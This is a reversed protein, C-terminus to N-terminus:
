ELYICFTCIGLLFFSLSSKQDRARERERESHRRSFFDTTAAEAKRIDVCCRKSRRSVKKDVIIDNEKPTTTLTSDFSLLLLTRKKELIKKRERELLGFCKNCLTKSLTEFNLTKLCLSPKFFYISNQKWFGM